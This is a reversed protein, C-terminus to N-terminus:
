MEDETLEDETEEDETDSQQSANDTLRDWDLVDDDIDEPSSGSESEEEVLSVDDDSDSDSEQFSEDDGSIDDLHSGDVSIDSDDIDFDECSSDDELIEDPEYREVPKPTRRPRQSM